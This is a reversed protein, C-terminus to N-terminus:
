SWHKLYPTQFQRRIARAVAESGRHWACSVLCALVREAQELGSPGRDLQHLLNDLEEEGPSLADVSTIDCRGLPRSTFAM